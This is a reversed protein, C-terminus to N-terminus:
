CIKRCSCTRPFTNGDMVFRNKFYIDKGAYKLFERGRRACLELCGALPYFGAETRAAQYDLNISFGKSKAWKNAEARSM